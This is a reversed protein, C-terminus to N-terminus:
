KHKKHRIFNLADVSTSVMTHWVGIYIFNVAENLNPLISVDTRLCVLLGGRESM